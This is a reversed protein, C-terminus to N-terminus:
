RGLIRRTLFWGVVILIADGVFLGLPLGAEALDIPTRFLALGSLMGDVSILLMALCNNAFHFGWAAGISGTRATLDAAVLGFLSTIAFVGLATARDIAPNFHLAGFVLSPFIMWVVFSKFRAALQQQFYGRFVMEEALTQVSIAILAVPLFTLWQSIDVNPRLDGFVFWLATAPLGLAFYVLATRTFDGLVRSARGFLTGPSRKHLLIVAACPAWAMGIFTSLLWIMPWPRSQADESILWAPDRVDFLRLGLWLLGVVVLAYVALMVATGVLIRWIAPRRRAPEIFKQFELGYTM